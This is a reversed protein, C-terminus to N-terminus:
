QHDLCSRDTVPVALTHVVNNRYWTMLVANVPQHCLVDGFEHHERSIM